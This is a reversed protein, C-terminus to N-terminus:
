IIDITLRHRIIGSEHFKAVFAIEIEEAYGISRTAFHDPLNALVLVVQRIQLGCPNMHQAFHLIAYYSMEEGRKDTKNSTLPIYRAM